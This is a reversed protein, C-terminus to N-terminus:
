RRSVGVIDRFDFYKKAFKDVVGEVFRQMLLVAVRDLHYAVSIVGM